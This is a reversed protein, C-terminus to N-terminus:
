GDDNEKVMVPYQEPCARMLDTLLRLAFMREGENKAMQLANTSFSAEFVGGERLWQWYLARGWKEGLLRKIREDHLKQELREKDEALKVAEEPANHKM